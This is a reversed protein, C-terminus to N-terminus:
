GQFLVIKVRLNPQISVSNAFKKIILFTSSRLRFVEKILLIEVDLIKIVLLFFREMQSAEM